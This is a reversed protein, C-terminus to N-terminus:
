KCALMDVCTSLLSTTGLTQSVLLLNQYVELSIVVRGRVCDDKLDTISKLIPREGNPSGGLALDSRSKWRIKDGVAPM